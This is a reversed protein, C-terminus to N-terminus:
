TVTVHVIPSLTNHHAVRLQQAGKSSLKVHVGYVGGKKVTTSAHLATWKGSSNLHRVTLKSGTKIHTVKGTIAVSSGTKVSTHNAHATISASPTAAAVTAPHLAPATAPGAIAVGAGGALMAACVAGIAATRIRPGKGTKKTLTTNM